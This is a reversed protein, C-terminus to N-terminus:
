GQHIQSDPCPSPLLSGLSSRPGQYSCSYRNGLKWAAVLYCSALKETGQHIGLYKNSVKVGTGCIDSFKIEVHPRHQFVVPTLTVNRHKWDNLWLVRFHMEWITGLPLFVHFICLSAITCNLAHSAMNVICVMISYLAGFVRDQKKPSRLSALRSKDFKDLIVHIRLVVNVPAPNAATDFTHSSLRVLRYLVQGDVVHVM